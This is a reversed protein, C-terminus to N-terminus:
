DEFDWKSTGAAIGPQTAMPNNPRSGLPMVKASRLCMIGYRMADMLHDDMKVIKGDKRYYNNFEVRFDSLWKAVKLKGNKMRQAILMVGAEVSNSGDQFTAHSPLMRLGEKRYLTALPIDSGKDHQTGDQPWAIPVDRGVANIRAAHNIPGGGKIKFAELIHVVDNDRDHALLVSAFNNYGFDVAWLVAWHRPIFEVRDEAIEDFSSDEYVRGEGRMPMGYKRMELEHKPYSALKVAWQAETFHVAEEVLLYTTQRNPDTDQFRNWAITPGKTATMTMFMIGDGTLRASCESYIKQDGPEMDEDLWIVDYETGQFKSVGEEYSKFILTSIGDEVGDTFHKVQLTDYADTVGRKTSPKDSFLSRPILGAGFEAVVGPPGVLKEQQVDRVTTATVGSCMTTVPHDFRKGVWWEPYQGTLHYVMEAGGCETKGTRNGGCALRERYKEGNAFFEKQRGYPNFFKIRSYKKLEWAEELAQLKEILKHRPLSKSLKATYDKRCDKGDGEDLCGCEPYLKCTMSTM